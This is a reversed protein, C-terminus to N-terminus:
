CRNFADEPDESPGGLSWQTLAVPILASIADEFWLKKNAAWVQPDGTKGDRFISHERSTAPNHM